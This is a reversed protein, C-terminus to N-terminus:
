RYQEIEEPTAHRFNKPDFDNLYSFPQFDCYAGEFVQSCGEHEGISFVWDGVKFAKRVERSRYRNVRKRFEGAWEDGPIQDCIKKGAEYWYGAIAPLVDEGVYDMTLCLAKLADSLLDNLSSESLKATNETDENWGAVVSEVIKNAM